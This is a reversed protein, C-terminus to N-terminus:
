FEKLLAMLNGWEPGGSIGLDPDDSNGWGRELLIVWALCYFSLPGSSLFDQMDADLFRLV